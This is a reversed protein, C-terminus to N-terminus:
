FRFYLSLPNKPRVSFLRTNWAVIAQCCPGLAGSQDEQGERYAQHSEGKKVM